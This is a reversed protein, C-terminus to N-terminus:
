IFQCELCLSVATAEDWAKLLSDLESSEQERGEKAKEGSHGVPLVYM